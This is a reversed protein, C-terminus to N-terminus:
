HRTFVTIPYNQHFFGIERVTDDNKKKIPKKPAIIKEDSSVPM